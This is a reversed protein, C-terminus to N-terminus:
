REEILGREKLLSAVTKELLVVEGKRYPGLIELDPGYFQPLDELVIVRQTTTEKQLLSKLVDKKFKKFLSAFEALKFEEKLMNTQNGKVIKEARVDILEQIGEKLLELNRKSIPDSLGQLIIIREQLRSFFDEDLRSLNSTEREQRLKEELLNLM